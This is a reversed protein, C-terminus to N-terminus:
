GLEDFDVELFEAIKILIGAPCCGGRKEYSMYMARTIGVGDAVERQFYGKQM